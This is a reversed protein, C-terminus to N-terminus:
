PPAPNAWAGGWGSYLDRVLKEWAARSRSRPFPAPRIPKSSTWVVDVQGDTRVKGLNVVRWAHNTAPDISVVGEPANLSQRVITRRIDAVDDGRAEKVAQAWLKVGVYAAEIVDSTVRLQGYRKKFRDVFERNEPRGLSEFYSWAAYTGAVDEPKIERLEDEGISVTLVPTEEAKVGAERLARYFAVNTGGVVASFVVDPNRLKIKAVVDAVNTTGLVLYEEGVLEADLAALQDKVIAFVCRPWIYDSGVLLFRPGLNEYGWNVAPTIQQNPAAGVYVVNPSQELGEYAMPYVLLHNYKEVIPLVSKRSASTWCGFITCVKADRILSEAEAAFVPWDSRGDRVDAVVRRGLLGGAENIEEIALLESDIMSKESIAMTGTQSHLIGVRIPPPAWRDGYFWGVALAAAAGFSFLFRATIFRKM